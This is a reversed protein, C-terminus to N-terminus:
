YYLRRTKNILDVDRCLKNISSEALSTKCVSAGEIQHQEKPESKESFDFLKLLNNNQTLFKNNQQAIHM